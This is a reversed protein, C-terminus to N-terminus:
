RPTDWQVPIGKMILIVTLVVVVSVVEDRDADHQPECIWCDDSRYICYWVGECDIQSSFCTAM